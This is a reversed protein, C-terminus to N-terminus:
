ESSSHNYLLVAHSFFTIMCQIEQLYDSREHNEKVMVLPSKVGTKFDQIESVASEIESINYLQKKHYGSKDGAGSDFFYMGALAKVTIEGPLNQAQQRQSCQACGDKRCHIENYPSSFAKRQEFGYYCCETELSAPREILDQNIRM